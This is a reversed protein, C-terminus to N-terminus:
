HHPILTLILTLAIATEAWVWARKSHLALQSSPPLSRFPPLLLLSSLLTEPSPPFPSACRPISPTHPLSLPPSAPVSLSVPFPSRQALIRTILALQCPLMIPPAMFFTGGGHARPDNLIKPVGKTWLALTLSPSYLILTLPLLPPISPPFFLALSLSRVPLCASRWSARATWSRLIETTIWKGYRAMHSM